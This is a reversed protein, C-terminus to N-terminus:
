GCGVYVKRRRVPPTPRRQGAVPIHSDTLAHGSFDDEAEGADFDFFFVVM